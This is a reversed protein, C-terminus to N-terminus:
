PIHVMDIGAMKKLLEGSMHQGSGTGAHAFSLKGSNAKAHAMLEQVNAVPLSAHVAVAIPQTTVQAVPVFDRLVEYPVNKVVLHLTVVPDAAFLITYSDASVARCARSYVPRLLGLPIPLV